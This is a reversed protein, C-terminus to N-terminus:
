DSKQPVSAADNTKQETTIESIIEYDRGKGFSDRMAKIPQFNCITELAKIIKTIDQKTIPAEDDYKINSTFNNLLVYANKIEIFSNDIEAASETVLTKSM